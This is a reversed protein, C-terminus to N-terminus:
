QEPEATATSPSAAAKLAAEDIRVDYSERLRGIVAENAARRQEDLYDQLVIDRVAGFDAAAPEERHTARVLHLGYSSATPGTWVELPADMVSAAFSPGFLGTLQQEDQDVFDFGHLFGDGFPEDSVGPTALALLTEEADTQTKEGRKESSFYVHRFTIRAPRGYREAHREFFARLAPEDPTAATAVDQTLFEMKQALRRRVITDDRDLGMTLAQRYLVEERIHAEVLGQLEASDPARQFQRSWGEKLRTITAANVDIRREGADPQEGAGQQRWAHVAFLVAGLAAFHTLPERVLRNFLKKL